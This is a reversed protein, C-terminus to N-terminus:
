LPRLSEMKSQESRRSRASADRRDPSRCGCRTACPYPVSGGKVAHWCRLSLAARCPIHKALRDTGNEAHVAWRRVKQFARMNSTAESAKADSRTRAKRGARGVRRMGRVLRAGVWVRGYLITEGCM